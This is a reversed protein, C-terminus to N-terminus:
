RRYAVYIDAEIIGDTGVFHHAFYLNGADDLTPEAAFQSVVEVTPGWTGDLRRLSRYVAHGPYGLGSDGSFWLENRDATVYPRTEDRATNVAPGLNVPEGWSADKRTIQWLDLGGHGGAMDSHYILTDGGDLPHLEGLAYTRNLLEGLNQIDAWRGDVLHATYLDVGRLNGARASCFWLTDGELAPCGDLATERGLVIREPEATWGDAARHTWWIGTVGDDLQQEAPIRADPTYFFLLTRGDATVFPADEAGATNVAGPLPIPPEWDDLHLIPPVVDTAPTVKVADAPIAEARTRLAPTAPGACAAATLLILLLVGRRFPTDTM